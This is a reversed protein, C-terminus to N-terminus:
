ISVNVAVYGETLNKEPEDFNFFPMRFGGKADYPNQFGSVGVMLTTPVPVPINYAYELLGLTAELVGSSPIKEAKEGQGAGRLFSHYSRFGLTLTHNGNTYGTFLGNKLLAMTQRGAIKCDGGALRDSPLADDSCGGSKFPESYFYGLFVPKYTFFLGWKSWTASFFGGLGLVRNSIRSGKSVPAELKLAPSFSLGLDSSHLAKKLEARVKLDGLSMKNGFSGSLPNGQGVWELNGSVEAHVKIEREGWIPGSKYTPYIYLTSAIYPDQKYASSVTSAGVNNTLYFDAGFPSTPSVTAHVEEAVLISSTTFFILTALWLYSCLKVM